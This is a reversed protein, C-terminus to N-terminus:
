RETKEGKKRYSLAEIGAVKAQEMIAIFTGLQSETDGRIELRKVASEGILSSLRETFGKMTVPEQNLTIENEATITVVHKEVKTDVVSSKVGGSPLNVNQEPKSFHSSVMLFILLQFVVDILPTM